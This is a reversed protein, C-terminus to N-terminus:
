KIYWGLAVCATMLVLNLLALPMLYKWELKLIQDIRLRPFTWRVWMLLWVVAFTKGFFWVFGPIYNMLNDFGSIGINLPAWGGLFVASAIGAIVFLNLYEALYYFGFGMGSYETHYGATLESEAEAMDFPGRNAEANGAVLFTLFAILAPIHGKFILWNWPGTQTEVIDSMQMTGTLVVAAVLCLGLSMEYSIMQVAARMASVVSYKSNSGWGAIFVGVVGLSSIATVLFIGVNFDLIHAGKNWPLFSFTGVSAAIVLFPALWYLLKDARDITFIEKILMKVVDAFVQFIGWPGVRMPGLRCQFYACVKREMFILAIAILAYATLIMVGVAVCEILITWFDGLGLTQRLLNDFWTTVISFDFM